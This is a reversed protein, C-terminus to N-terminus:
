RELVKYVRQIASVYAALTFMQARRRARSGLSRTRAPDGLLARICQALQVGNGPEFLLGTGGHQILEPAAGHNSAIVACGAAMAELVSLGFPEPWLSPVVVIDVTELLVPIDDRFGGFEVRSAPGDRSTADRLAELRWSEGAPPSGFIQFRADPFEPAVAAAADVFLEYGKWRNLRGIFVVRPNRKSRRTRRGYQATDIGNYIRLIRRASRRGLTVHAQVADSVAIVLDATLSPAWRFVWAIPRPQTVLEHVHWIVRAKRPRGILAGVLLATTNVYVIDARFGRVEARVFMAARVLAVVFRPLARVALYRRRAPALPGHEVQAGLQQLQDSLWGPESDDALLVRVQRGDSLAAAVSGLLMRDAGYAEDSPHLFLVSGPRLRDRVDM